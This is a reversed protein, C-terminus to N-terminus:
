DPNMVQVHRPDLLLRLNPPGTESCIDTMLEGKTKAWGQGKGESITTEHFHDDSQDDATTVWKSSKQVRKEFM